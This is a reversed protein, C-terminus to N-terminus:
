TRTISRASAHVRRATTVVILVDQPTLEPFREQIARFALHEHNHGAWQGQPDFFPEIAAYAQAFVARLGTNTRRDTDPTPSSM